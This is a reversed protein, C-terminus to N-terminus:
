KKYTGLINREMRDEVRKNLYMLAIEVHELAKETEEDYLYALVEDEDDFCSLEKILEKVKM